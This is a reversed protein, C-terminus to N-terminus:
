WVLLGTPNSQTRCQYSVSPLIISVYLATATAVVVDLLMWLCWWWWWLIRVISYIHYIHYLSRLQFPTSSYVRLLHTRMKSEVFMVDRSERSLLSPISSFTTVACCRSNMGGDEVIYFEIGTLLLSGNLIGYITREMRKKKQEVTSYEEKKGRKEV